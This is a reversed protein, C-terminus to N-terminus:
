DAYLAYHQDTSIDEVFALTLDQNRRWCRKQNRPPGFDRVPIRCAVCAQCTACHPRYLPPGSGPLALGSLQSDVRTTVHADPDIFLTTAERADLYSCPHPQTAFLKLNSLDSM